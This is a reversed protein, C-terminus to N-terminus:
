LAPPWLHTSILTETFASGAWKPCPSTSGSSYPSQGYATEFRDDRMHSPAKPRWGGDVSTSCQSGARGGNRAGDLDDRVAWRDGDDHRAQVLLGGDADADLFGDLPQLAAPGRTFNDDDVVPRRVPRRLDRGGRARADDVLPTAAVALGIQASELLGAAVVDDHAVRVVGVVETVQRAQHRGEVTAGVHDHPVPERASDCVPGHGPRMPVDAARDDVEDDAEEEARPDPVALAPEPGEPAIGRFPHSQAGAAHLEGRLHDHARRM